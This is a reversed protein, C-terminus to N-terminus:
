CASLGSPLVVSKGTQLYLVFLLGCHTPKGEKLDKIYFKQNKLGDDIVNKTLGLQIARDM